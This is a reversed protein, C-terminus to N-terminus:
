RRNKRTSSGRNFLNNEFMTHKKNLLSLIQNAQNHFAVNAVIMDDDVLVLSGLRVSIIAGADRAVGKAVGITPSLRATNVMGTLLNKVDFRGGGLVKEVKAPFVAKTNAKRELLSIYESIRTQSKDM